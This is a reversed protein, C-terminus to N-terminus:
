TRTPDSHAITLAGIVKQHQHLPVSILAQWNKQNRTRRYQWNPYDNILLSKGTQVVMGGAGEGLTYDFAHDLGFLAAQRLVSSGEQVLDLRGVEANLLLIARKLISQLLSDLEHYRGLELNIEHLAEMQASHAQANREALRLNSVLRTNELATSASAAFRKLAELDDNTFKNVVRTDAISLAGIVQEGRFLPASMASRWYPPPEDPEIHRGEWVSYDQVVIATNQAIVQGSLGRGVVGSPSPSSGFVAVRIFQEGQVLYVAGADAEFLATVRNVLDNLLVEPELRESLILNTQYVAELLRAQRWSKQAAANAKELLLTKELSVNVISAFRELTALDEEQFQAPNTTRALTLTGIVAEHLHLPVALAAQWRLEPTPKGSWSQYDSILQPLGTSLVLGSIGHEPTINQVTDNPHLHAVTQISQDAQIMYVAGDDAELLKAARELIAHLFADPTNHRSVALSAEHLLQLQRTQEIARAEAKRADELLLLNELALSAIAAFQQLAALDEQTFRGVFRMDVLTLAGIVQKQRYLPVGIVSRWHKSSDEPHYFESNTYDELLIPTSREIVRGSVGDGLKARPVFEDGQTTILQIHEGERLYLSGAEAQLVGCVRDLLNKALSDINHLSGLELSTKYLVDLFAARQEAETKAHRTEFHLRANELLGSITPAIQWILELTAATFSNERMNEFFLVGLPNQTGMLAVAILGRVGAEIHSQIRESFSAYDNVLLAQGFIVQRLYHENGTHFVAMSRNTVLLELRDSEPRQLAIAGHAGIMESCRTMLTQLAELPDSQLLAYALHRQLLDYKYLRTDSQGTNKRPQHILTAQELAVGAFAAFRSLLELHETTYANIQNEWVLTMTGIIKGAQFLPVALVSRNLNGYRASRYPSAQYDRVLQARQEQYVRGTVGEGKNFITGLPTILQGVGYRLELRGDPLGIYLAASTGGCFSLVGELMGILLKDNDHQMSLASTLRQLLSLTEHVLGRRAKKPPPRSSM